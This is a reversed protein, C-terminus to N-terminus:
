KKEGNNRRLEDNQKELSDIRDKLGSIRKENNSADRKMKDLSKSSDRSSKLKYLFGIIFAIVGVTLVLTLDINRLLLLTVAFKTM